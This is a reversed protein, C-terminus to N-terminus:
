VTILSSTLSYKVADPFEKLPCSIPKIHEMHYFACTKDCPLFIENDESHIFIPINAAIAMGIEIHTGFGGPLLVVLFDSQLVGTRENNAVFCLKEKTTCKVSGVLSWDYTISYGANLLSDRVFNHNKYRSLSTAIYFKKM